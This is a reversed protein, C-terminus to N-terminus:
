VRERGSARGIESRFPKVLYDDAGTDLGTVVDSAEGRGTLMLVCVNSTSRLNRLVEFGDIDPLGVDLIVLDPSDDEIKRLADQGSAATEVTYDGGNLVISIMDRLNPDDDVILVRRAAM